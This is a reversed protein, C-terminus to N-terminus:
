CPIEGEEGSINTGMMTIMGMITEPKKILLALMDIFYLYKFLWNQIFSEIRMM